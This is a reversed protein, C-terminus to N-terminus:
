LLRGSEVHVVGTKQTNPNTDLRYLVVGDLIEIKTLDSKSIVATNIDQEISDIYKKAAVTSREIIFDIAATLGPSGDYLATTKIGDRIDFIRGNALKYLYKKETM